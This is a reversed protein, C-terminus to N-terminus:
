DGGAPSGLDAPLDVDRLTGRQPDLAAWVGEPIASSRLTALLSGLSREGSALLARAAARAPAVRVVMPLPRDRGRDRLVVAEADDREAVHVMERLVDTSLDPMDGGVILALLDDAAGALGAVVGALPGEAEREDRAVRVAAGLGRPLSPEPSAPGIVVVLEACVEALRLVAHHLLPIGRDLAELKNSGFRTSRGGALVVGTV